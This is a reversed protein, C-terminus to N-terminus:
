MFCDVLSEIGIPSWASLLHPVEQITHPKPLGEVDHQLINRNTISPLSPIQHRLDSEHDDRTQKPLRVDIAIPSAPAAPAPATTWRFSSEFRAECSQVTFYRRTQRGLRLTWLLPNGTEPCYPIAGWTHSPTAGPMVSEFAFHPSSRSRLSLM